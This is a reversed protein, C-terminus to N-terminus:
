KTALFQQFQDFLGKLSRSLGAAMDYWLVYSLFLFLLLLGGIVRAWFRLDPLHSVNDSTLTKEYCEPMLKSVGYESLAPNRGHIFAYLRREYNKIHHLDEAERFKGKFGLALIHFYVFALAKQAPDYRSLLSDMKQFIQEGASQTQFLQSELLFQQWIKQGSWPLTLFVEDALAIMAYQAEKLQQLDTADLLHLFSAIRESLLKKLRTQIDDAAKVAHVPAKPIEHAALPSQNANSSAPVEGEPAAPVVTPEEQDLEADLRTTRLAIEKCKLLEYYFSKFFEGLISSSGLASGESYHQSERSM